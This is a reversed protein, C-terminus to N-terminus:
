IDASIHPTYESKHYVTYVCVCVCMYIYIYIYIYLSLSLSLTFLFTYVSKYIDMCIYIHDIRRSFKSDRLERECERERKRERERERERERKKQRKRIIYNKGEGDTELM